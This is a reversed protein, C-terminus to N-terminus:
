VAADSYEFNSDRLYKFTTSRCVKLQSLIGAIFNYLILMATEFHGQKVKLVVIDHKSAM